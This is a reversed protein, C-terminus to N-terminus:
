RLFVELPHILICFFHIKRSVTFTCMIRMYIHLAWEIMPHAIHVHFLDLINSYSVELFNLSPTPVLALSPFYFGVNRFSHSISM